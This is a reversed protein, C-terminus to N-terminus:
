SPKVTTEHAPPVTESKKVLIRGNKDFLFSLRAIESDLWNELSSWSYSSTESLTRQERKFFYIKSDNRDICVGSGDFSYGGIGLFRDPDFPPWSRNEGEINFPLCKLPNRRNLLQGPAHVGFISLADSFLIAGNQTALFDVISKPLRLSLSLDALAASPAPKFVIHFYAEPAVWPVHAMFFATESERDTPSKFGSLAHLLHTM